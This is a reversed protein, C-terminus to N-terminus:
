DFPEAYIIHHKGALLPGGSAVGRSYTCVLYLNGADFIAVVTEGNSPSIEGVSETIKKGNHWFCIERIRANLITNVQDTVSEKLLNYVHEAHEDNSSAPVFFKM